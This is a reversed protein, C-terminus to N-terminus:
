RPSRAGLSRAPKIKNNSGQKIGGLGDNGELAWTPIQEEVKTQLQVDVYAADDHAERIGQVVELVAVSTAATQGISTQRANGGITEEWGAAILIVVVADGKERM